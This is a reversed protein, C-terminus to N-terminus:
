DRPYPPGGALRVLARGVRDLEPGPLAVVAGLHQPTCPAQDVDEDRAPARAQDAAHHLLRRHRHDLCANAVAVDIDVRSGVQVLGCGDDDVGLGVAGADAVRGLREQDVLVDGVLEESRFLTTYPLLTDTRTSRPPRRIM